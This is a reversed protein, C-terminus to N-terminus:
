DDRAVPRIGPQEVAPDVLVAPARSAVLDLVPQRERVTEARIGSRGLERERDRIPDVFGAAVPEVEVADLRREDHEM